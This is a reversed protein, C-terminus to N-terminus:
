GRNNNSQVYPLSKRTSWRRMSLGEKLSYKQGKIALRQPSLGKELMFDLPNLVASGFSTLEEMRFSFSGERWSFFSFVIKEIQGEVAREVVATPIQYLDRLIRGLPQHETLSQQYSLAEDIQDETVIGNRRLDAGPRGHLLKLFSQDRTRGFLSLVKLM